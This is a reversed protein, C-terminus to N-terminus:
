KSRSNGSSKRPRVNKKEKQPKVVEIIPKKLEAMQLELEQVRNCSAVMLEQFGTSMPLDMNDRLYRCADSYNM